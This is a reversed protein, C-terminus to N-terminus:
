KVGETAAKLVAAYHEEKLVGADGVKRNAKESALTQAKGGFKALLEVAAEKGKQDGLKATMAARYNVMAERVDEITPAAAPEDLFDDEVVEPEEVVPPPTVKVAAKPPTKAAAKIEEKREQVYTKPKELTVDLAKANSLLGFMQNYSTTNRDLSEILKTLQVEISM